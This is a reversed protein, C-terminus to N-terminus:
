WGEEEDWAEMEDEEFDYAREDTRINNFRVGCHPCSMIDRDFRYGCITCVHEDEDCYHPIDIRTRTRKKKGAFRASYQKNTGKSTKGFLCGLFGLVVIGGLVYLLSSDGNAAAYILYVVLILGVMM